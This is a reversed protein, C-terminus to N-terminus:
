GHRCSLPSPEVPRLVMVFGGSGPICGWDVMTWLVLVLPELRVQGPTESVASQAVLTWQMDLELFGCDCDVLPFLLLARGFMFSSGSSGIYNSAWKDWVRHVLAWDMMGQSIGICLSM